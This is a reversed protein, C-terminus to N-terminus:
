CVERTYKFTSFSVSHHIDDVDACSQPEIHPLGDAGCMCRWKGKRPAARLLLMVLCRVSPALSSLHSLSSGDAQMPMLSGALQGGQSLM